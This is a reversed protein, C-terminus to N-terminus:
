IKLVPLNKPCIGKIDFIIGNNIILKKWNELTISRFIDHGVAAIVASYRYNPIENLIEIAYDRKCDASDVYPDVIEYELGYVKLANIMDFVRSNRHDPCNEKYSYGLILVKTGGIVLRRNAMEIILQDVIWKAMGNNIQRVSSVLRPSIGMQKSKFKLYYPDIGICHGGVLGPRFDLFNWKTKAAELVELTPINLTKFIISLENVFAINLDRQTNEIVKSAEAIKISSANHTGAKIISKYLYDVKRSAEKNSGSTVKIISTLTNKKDGPNIREPSYGVLFDQNIKKNTIKEIIPICIDDTVGPYVTSEYIILPKINSNKQELFNKNITDGVIETAKQIFTLDPDKNENIPTPVTIIFINAESIENKNCTFILNNRCDEIESEGVSNTRDKHSKLEEIRSQNIDFGIVKRNLPKNTLVCSKTKAFTTLLPLGVYGVGIVAISCQSFISYEDEYKDAFM